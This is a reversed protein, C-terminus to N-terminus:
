LLGAEIASRMAVTHAVTANGAAVRFLLVVAEGEFVRFKWAEAQTPEVHITEEVRGPVALVDFTQDAM